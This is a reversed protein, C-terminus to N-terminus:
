DCPLVRSEYRQEISCAYAHKFMSSDTETDHDWTVPRHTRTYTCLHRHVAHREFGTQHGTVDYLLDTVGGRTAHGVLLGLHLDDAGAVLEVEEYM